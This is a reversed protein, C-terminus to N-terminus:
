IEYGFHVLYRIFYRGNVQEVGVAWTGWDFEFGTTPAPRHLSFYPPNAGEPLQVLSATPGHLITNCGMQNAPLLDRDLLPLAHAAFTGQLAFGSGMQTGWDYQTPSTFLTPADAATFRVQPNWWSLGIRMGEPHILQALASGDRNQVATQLDSVLQGIEPTFCFSEAPTMQALFTGNVWGVVDGVVVPVWLSNGVQEGAGTIAIGMQYPPLADVVPFGVGPGTRVNLTDDIAVDVVKYLPAAPTPSPEATPMPTPETITIIPPAATPSPEIESPVSAIPALTPPLVVVSPEPEVAPVNLGPVTIVIPEPESPQCAATALLLTLLLLRKPHSM